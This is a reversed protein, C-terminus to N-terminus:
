WVVSCWMSVCTSTSRQESRCGVVAYRLQRPDIKRDGGTPVDVTPAGHRLRIVRALHLDDELQDVVGLLDGLGVLAPVQGLPELLARTRMESGCIRTTIAPWSLCPLLWNSLESSLTGTARTPSSSVVTSAVTTDYESCTDACNITAAGSPASGETIGIGGAFRLFSRRRAGSAPPRSTNRTSTVALLGSSLCPRANMSVGPTPPWPCGCRDAVSPRSGSASAISIILSVLWSNVSGSIVKM